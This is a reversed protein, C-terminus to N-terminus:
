VNINTKVRENLALDGFKKEVFILKQLVDNDELFSNMTLSLASWVPKIKKLLVKGEESFQIDKRRGDDKSPTLVLLQKEQLVKVLQSIASHSVDLIEAIEYISLRDHKDLLYFVGFWSAEFPIDLDNYVKNIESLFYDSLRKLRTGFVLPGLEQYFNM